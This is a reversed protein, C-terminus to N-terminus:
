APDNRSRSAPNLLHEQIGIPWSRLRSGTRGRRQAISITGVNSQGQNPIGGTKWVQPTLCTVLRKGEDGGPSTGTCFPGIDGFPVEAQSLAELIPPFSDTLNILLRAWVDRNEHVPNPALGAEFLSVALRRMAVGFYRHQRSLFDSPLSSNSGGHYAQRVKRTHRRVWSGYDEDARRSVPLMRRLSANEFKDLMSVAGRSWSWSACGFLVVSFVRSRLEAFRKVLPIEPTQLVSHWKWFARQGAALRMRVPELPDAAITSGLVQLSTVRQFEHMRGNFSAHL